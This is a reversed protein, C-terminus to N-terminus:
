AANRDTAREDERAGENEKRSREPVGRGTLFNDEVEPRFPLGWSKLPNRGLVRRKEEGVKEPLSVGLVFFPVM